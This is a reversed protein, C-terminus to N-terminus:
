LLNLADEPVKLLTRGDDFSIGSASGPHDNVHRDWRGPPSKLPDRSSRPM